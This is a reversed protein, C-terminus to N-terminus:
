AIEIIDTIKVGDTTPLEGTLSKGSWTGSATRTKWSGTVHVNTFGYKELEAKVQNNTAPLKLGSLTITGQYRKNTTLTMM